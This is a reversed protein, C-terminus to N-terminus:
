PAIRGDDYGSIDFEIQNEDSDVLPLEVVMTKGGKLSDVLRDAKCITLGFPTGGEAIATQVQASDIRYYVRCRGPCHVDAGVAILDVVRRSKLEGGCGGRKNSSVTLFIQLSGRPTRLGKSFNMASVSKGWLKDSQASYVWAHGTKDSAIVSATLIAACSLSVQFM